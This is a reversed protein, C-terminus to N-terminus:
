VGCQRVVWASHFFLRGWGCLDKGSIFRILAKKAGGVYEGQCFGRRAIINILRKFLIYLIALRMLNSLPFFLKISSLIIVSRGGIILGGAGWVTGQLIKIM